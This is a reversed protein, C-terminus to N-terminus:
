GVSRVTEQNLRARIEKGTKFFAIVKQAGQVEAGTKPNRGTRAGRCKPTHARSRPNKPPPGIMFGLETLFLALEVLLPSGNKFVEEDPLASNIKFFLESVAHLVKRAAAKAERETPKTDPSLPERLLQKALEIDGRLQEHSVEIKSINVLVNRAATQLDAPDPKEPKLTEAQRQQKEATRTMLRQLDNCAGQLRDIATKEEAATM